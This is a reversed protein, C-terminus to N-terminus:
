RAPAKAPAPTTGSGTTEQPIPNTENRAVNAEWMNAIFLIGGVVALVIAALAFAGSLRTTRLNGHPDRNSEYTMSKEKHAFALASGLKGTAPGARFAMHPIRAAPAGGENDWRGIADSRQSEDKLNADHDNQSGAM